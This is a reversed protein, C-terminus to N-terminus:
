ATVNRVEAALRDLNQENAETVIPAIRQVEAATDFVQRWGVLTKEGQAEFTITMWFHHGLTHEFVVREQPVVEKFISENPYNKGDPGHLIFRWAGGARLDFEHFTSSFGKPGWWRALHAPDSFARYVRERPADILRSHVFERDATSGSPDPQQTSM